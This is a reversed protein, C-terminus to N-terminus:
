PFSTTIGDDMRALRQYLTFDINEPMFHMSADAM